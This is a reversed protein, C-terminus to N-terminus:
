QPGELERVLEEAWALAEPFAEELAEFGGPSLLRELRARVEEPYERDGYRAGFDFKAPRYRINLLGALLGGTFRQYQTLADIRNGRVMQKQVETVAVPLSGTLRRLFGAAQETVDEDPFGGALM